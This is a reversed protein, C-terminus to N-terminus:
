GVYKMVRAIFIYSYAKKGTKFKYLDYKDANKTKCIGYTSSGAHCQCKCKGNPCNQDLRGVSFM